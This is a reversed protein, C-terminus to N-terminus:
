EYCDLYLKAYSLSLNPQLLLRNSHRWNNRPSRGYRKPVRGGYGPSTRMNYSDDAAWGRANQSIENFDRKDRVDKHAGGNGSLPEWSGLEFKDNSKLGNNAGFNPWDYLNSDDVRINNSSIKAFESEEKLDWKSKRKRVSGSM